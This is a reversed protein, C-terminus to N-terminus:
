QNSRKNHGRAFCGAFAGGRVVDPPDEGWSLHTIGEYASQSTPTLAKGTAIFTGMYILAHLQM